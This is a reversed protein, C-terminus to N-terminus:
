GASPDRRMTTGAAAQHSGNGEPETRRTPEASQNSAHADGTLKMLRERATLQERLFTVESELEELRAIDEASMDAAKRGEALKKAETVRKEIDGRLQAIRDQSDSM